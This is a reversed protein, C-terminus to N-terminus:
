HYTKEINNLVGISLPKNDGDTSVITAESLLVNYIADTTAFPLEFLSNQYDFWGTFNEIKLVLLWPTESLINSVLNPQIAIDWPNIEANQPDYIISITINSVDQLSDSLFVDLVQADNKYAIDWNNKKMEEAEQLSIVSASFFGPNETFYFLAVACIIALVLIIINTKLRSKLWKSM